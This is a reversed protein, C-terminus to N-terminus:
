QKANTPAEGVLNRAMRMTPDGAIKRVLDAERHCGTKAFVAKIQTKVTNLSLGAEAAFDAPRRGNVVAILVRTEASTLGYTAKVMEHHPELNADPDAIFVVALPELPGVPATDYPLPCVMLSIPSGDPTSVVITEGAFLSRGLPALAASRTASKLRDDLEPDALLLRGQRVKVGVGASVLREAATNMLRVRNEAGVVIVGVSLAAL